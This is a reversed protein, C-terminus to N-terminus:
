GGELFKTIIERLGLKDFLNFYSDATFFTDSILWNWFMLIFFIIIARGIVGGWPLKLVYKSIPVVCLSYCFVILADRLIYLKWGYVSRIIFTPLLYSFISAVGFWVAVFIWKYLQIKPLSQTKRFSLVVFAVISSIFLWGGWLYITLLIARMQM